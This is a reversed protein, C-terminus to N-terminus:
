GIPLLLEKGPPLVAPAYLEDSVEMSNSLYLFTSSYRWAEM